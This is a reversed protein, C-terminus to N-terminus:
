SHSFVLYNHNLSGEIENRFRYDKDAMERSLFYNEPVSIINLASLGMSKGAADLMAVASLKPHVFPAASRAM